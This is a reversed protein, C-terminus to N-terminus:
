SACLYDEGERHGLADLASRVLDRAGRAGLAVVVWHEGPARLQEPPVVPAGRASGGIKRPDIDIFRAARVGCSELARVLRKGTPGAGWVDVPRAYAALRRALYPAKLELFRRRAYRPDRLTAREPRHRWRLLVASLKALAFGAADLRLWLDYDEPFPGDRYGGVKALADARLMVSPHCLPSEVFLQRRHDEPALLGNQWCLYRRMGEAVAYEPFAEVRTGIAALAPNARLATLQARLRGPLSVDDADMRALLPARAAQVATQLARGIGVRPTRVMRVRPDGAAIAATVEASQDRSGDDVVILELAVDHEALVSELAEAITDEADRCPLLVSVEPLASMAIRPPCRWLRQPLDM